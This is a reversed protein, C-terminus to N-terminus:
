VFYFGGQSDDAKGELVEWQRQCHDVFKESPRCLDHRNQAWNVQVNRVVEQRVEEQQSVEQWM